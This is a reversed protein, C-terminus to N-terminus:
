GLGGSWSVQQSPPVPRGGDYSLGQSQRPAEWLQLAKASDRKPACWDRCTVRNGTWNHFYEHGVVGEIASYDGDTATAPSALVLRSNFVNLSKNEMAGMNFDDVAVINFLDLDYRCLGHRPNRCGETAKRSDALRTQPLSSSLPSPNPAYELGYVDEDWKMSAKLSVMAHDCKDINHAETYIALDVTRGSMTKFTDQVAWWIDAGSWGHTEVTRLTRFIDSSAPNPPATPRHGNARVKLVALNGAVLAFLYCPKVFPDEWVAFHKGGDADGSDVLNGNGLLVPFKAKDATMRTVYKTMVDPRDPFYTINRFGNAECQTCFNGSSKYLGELSTNNVPDIEVTISLAFSAPPAKVILQQKKTMEYQDATLAVGDIAIAKLELYTSGDLVQSHGEALGGHATERV